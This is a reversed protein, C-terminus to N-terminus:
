LAIEDDTDSRLTEMKFLLGKRRIMTKIKDISEEDDLTLAAIKTLITKLETLLQQMYRNNDTPLRCLLLQNKILLDIVMEKEVPLASGRVAQDSKWYNAYEIIVPKINELHAQFRRVFFEHGELPDALKATKLGPLNPTDKLHLGVTLGVVFIVVAAALAGARYFWVSRHMSRKGQQKSPSSELRDRVVQWSREWDPMSPAERQVMYGNMVMQFREQKGTCDPCANLHTEVLQRDRHDLENYIYLGMLSEIENCNM